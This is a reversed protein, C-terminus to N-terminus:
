RLATRFEGSRISGAMDELFEATTADGHKALLGYVAATVAMTGIIDYPVGEKAANLWFANFQDFLRMRMGEDPPLETAPAPMTPLDATRTAAFANMSRNEEQQHDHM